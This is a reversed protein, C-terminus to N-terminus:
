EGFLIKCGKDELKDVFDNNSSDNTIIYDVESFSLLPQVSTQGMKTDDGLIYVKLAVDAMRKEVNAVLLNNSWIGTELDIGDTGLFAIDIKVNDFFSIAQPGVICSTRPQVSGGCVKIDLGSNAMLVYASSISNTYVTVGKLNKMCACLELLTSGGAIAIKSGSKICSKARMAISRKKEVNLLIKQALPTDRNADVSIAGGYTRILLGGTEMSSLLKRATSPAIHLEQCVEETTIRFNKNLLQLVELIQNNYYNSLGM